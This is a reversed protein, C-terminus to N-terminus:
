ELGQEQEQGEEQGLEHEEEQELKHEEEQGLKHEEKQELDNGQELGEPELVQGRGSRWCVEM